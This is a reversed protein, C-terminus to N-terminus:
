SAPAPARANRDARRRRATERVLIDASRGDQQQVPLVILHKRQLLRPAHRRAQLRVPHWHLQVHQRSFPVRQACVPQQDEPHDPLLAQGPQFPRICQCM